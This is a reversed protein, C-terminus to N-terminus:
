FRCYCSSFNNFMQLNQLNLMLTSLAPIEIKFWNMIVLIHMLFILSVWSFTVYSTPFPWTHHSLLDRIIYHFTVYSTLSLWTHHPSLDRLTHHSPLDRIIHPLTVYSTPFPRTHHSPLDHIIHPFPWTHHSPLDRIIWPFETVRRHVLGRDKLSEESLSKWVCLLKSRQCSGAACIRALRQTWAVHCDTVYKITKNGSRPFMEGWFFSLFRQRFSSLACIEQKEAAFSFFRASLLLIWLPNIKSVSTM